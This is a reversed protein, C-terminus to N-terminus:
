EIDYEKLRRYYTSKSGLKTRNLAEELTIIGNLHQRRIEILLEKSITQKKRGVYDKSKEKYYESVHNYLKLYISLHEERNSDDVQIGDLMFVNRAALNKIVSPIKKYLDKTKEILLVNEKYFDDSKLSLNDGSYQRKSDLALLFPHYYDFGQELLEERLNVRNKPTVRESIFVPTFNARYYYKLKLSLDIGPIDVYLNSLVDYYPEFIYQFSENEFLEYTLKAIKFFIDNKYKYTIYGYKSFILKEGIIKKNFESM